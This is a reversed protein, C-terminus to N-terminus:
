SSGTSKSAMPVFEVKGRERLRRKKERRENERALGEVYYEEPWRTPVALEEPLSSAYSEGRDMGAYEMLKSLLSPNRLSSSQQLRANFHVDQKKLALFRSFKQTTADLRAASSSHPPPTHPSSPISFNPQSPMTLNRLRETEHTHPSTTDSRRPASPGPAPGPPPAAGTPLTDTLPPNAADPLSHRIGDHPTFPTKDSPRTLKPPMKAKEQFATFSVAYAM